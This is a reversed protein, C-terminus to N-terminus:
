AQCIEELMITKLGMETTTFSLIENNKHSGLMGSHMHWLWWWNISVLNKNVLTFLVIIFILISSNRRCTLKIERHTELCSFMSWIARRKKRKQKKQVAMSNGWVAVTDKRELRRGKWVKLLRDEQKGKQYSGRKSAYPSVETHTENVSEQSLVEEFYQPTNRFM